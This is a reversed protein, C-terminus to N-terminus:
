GPGSEMADEPTEDRDDDPQEPQGQRRSIWLTEGAIVLAIGGDQMRAILEPLPDPAETLLRDIPSRVYSELFRAMTPGALEDLHRWANPGIYVEGGHARFVRELEVLKPNPTGDLVVLVPTFGSARCDAPFDLEEGWRGQGSAAITVRIKLEYARGELICDVQRGKRSDRQRKVPSNRAPVPTGGIANAIVPEFLYGTEQGARNDIDFM